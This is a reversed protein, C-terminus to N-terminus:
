DFTIIFLGSKSKLSPNHPPVYNKPPRGVRGYSGRLKNINRVGGIYLPM